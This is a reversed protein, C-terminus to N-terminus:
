LRGEAHVGGTDLLTSPDLLVACWVDAPVAKLLRRAATEVVDAAGGGTEITRQLSRDLAAADPGPRPFGMSPVYGVTRTVM